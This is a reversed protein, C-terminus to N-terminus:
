RNMLRDANQDLLQDAATLADDLAARKAALEGAYKAIVPAQLAAQIDAMRQTFGIEDKCAVVKLAMGIQEETIANGSAGAPLWPQPGLAKSLGKSEFCRDLDGVLAATGPADLSEMRHDIEKIAASWPGDQDQESILRKVLPDSSTCKGVLNQDEESLNAFPGPSRQRGADGVSATLVGNAVLDRQSEPIVFAFAQAQATTWPGFYDESDYAPDVAPKVAKGTAAGAKQACMSIALSTAASVRSAENHSYQFRDFPLIVAGSQQDLQPKM